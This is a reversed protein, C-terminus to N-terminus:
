KKVSANVNTEVYKACKISFPRVEKLLKKYESTGVIDSDRSHQKTMAGIFISNFDPDELDFSLKNDSESIFEPRIFISLLLCYLRLTSHHLIPILPEKPQLITNFSHFIPILSKVFMVYLKRVPQKFANVLRKKRSPREDLGNETTGNDLDFNSLCYSQFSDQQM